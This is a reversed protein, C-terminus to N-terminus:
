KKKNKDAKEKAIKDAEVKAKARFEELEKADAEAKEKAVKEAELKKVKEEEAKKMAVPDLGFSYYGNDNQLKEEDADAVIVYNEKEKGNKYLAAPYDLLEM